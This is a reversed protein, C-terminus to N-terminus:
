FLTFRTKDKPQHFLEKVALGDVAASTYEVKQIGSPLTHRRNTSIM